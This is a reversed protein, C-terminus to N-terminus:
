RYSKWAMCRHFHLQTPSFSTAVPHCTTESHSSEQAQQSHVSSKAKVVSVSGNGPTGKPKQFKPTQQKYNFSPGPSHYQPCSGPPHDGSCRWCLVSPRSRDSPPGSTTNKPMPNVTKSSMRQNYDLQQQYDKEFQHGLRVLDEVTDVRGRLQSALLPKINKLILKVIGSETLSPNWKRCLARYSFAFDRINENENQRRNRVREALEDEYDESLFAKLFNTEFESWANIRSRAIEWWDRATGHLVTRFTTLIDADSLPHLALFDHCKALYNLPDPDDKPMGYTPFTIRIHDSKIVAPTTTESTSRQDVPCASNSSSPTSKDKVTLLELNEQLHYTKQEISQLQQQNEVKMTNITSTVKQIETNNVELTKALQGISDQTNTSFGRLEQQVESQLQETMFRIESLLSTESNKVEEEVIGKIGKVINDM